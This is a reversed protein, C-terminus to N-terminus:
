YLVGPTDEPIEVELIEIWPASLKYAVYGIPHAYCGEDRYQQKLINVIIQLARRAKADPGGSVVLNDSIIYTGNDNLNKITIM